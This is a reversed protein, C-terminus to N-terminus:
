YYQKVEPEFEQGSECRPPTAPTAPPQTPPPMRSSTESTANAPMLMLAIVCIRDRCFLPVLSVGSKGAENERNSM